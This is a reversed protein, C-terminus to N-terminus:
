RATLTGVMEPHYTCMFRYTGARDVKVKFASDQAPNVVVDSSFTQPAGDTINLVLNHVTTGENSFTFEYELAVKITLADPVYYNDKGVIKVSSGTVETGGPAPPGGPATPATPEAAAPTSARVPERRLNNVADPVVAFFLMVGFFLPVVVSYIFHIREFRLHMFIAMILVAKLLSMVMLTTVLLVKPIHLLAVGVELVTIALLWGWTVYYARDGGEGAHAIAPGEEEEPVDEAVPPALFEVASARVMREKKANREEVVITM